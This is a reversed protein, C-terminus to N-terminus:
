PDPSGVGQPPYGPGAQQPDNHTRELKLLYEAPPRWFVTENYELADAVMYQIYVRRLPKRLPWGLEDYPPINTSSFVVRGDADSWNTACQGWIIGGFGTRWALVVEANSLPKLTASDIVSVTIPLRPGYLMTCGSALILGIAACTAVIWKIM